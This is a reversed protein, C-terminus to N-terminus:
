LRQLQSSYGALPPSGPRSDSRRRCRGPALPMCPSPALSRVRKTVLLNPSFFTLFSEKHDNHPLKPVMCLSTYIYTYIHIYINNFTITLTLLSLDSLNVNWYSQDMHMGTIRCIPLHGMRASRIKGDTRLKPLRASSVKRSSLYSTWNLADGKLNEVGCKQLTNKEQVKLQLFNGKSFWGMFLRDITM